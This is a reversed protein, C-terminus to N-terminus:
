SRGNLLSLTQESVPAVVPDGFRWLEKAAVSLGGADDAVNEPLKLSVSSPRSLRMLGFSCVVVLLHVWGENHFRHKGVRVGDRFRLCRGRGDPYRVSAGVDFKQTKGQHQQPVALPVLVLGFAAPGCDIDLSIADLKRTTLFFGFSPRIALTASCPREYKNQYYVSLCCAGNVTTPLISFCFGDREFYGGVAERLFDPLADRKLHLRVLVALIIVAIAPTVYRLWGASQNPRVDGALWVFVSVIVVVIFVFALCAKVSERLM